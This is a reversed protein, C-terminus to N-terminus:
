TATAIILSAPGALGRHEVEGWGSAALWDRVEDTGYVDGEGTIILFEGALLAAQLPETHNPNTWFDLLLLRTGPEAARRVRQLLTRNKEPSFLHIVNALLIVDAGEPLPDSFADGGIVRINKGVPERELRPKAVAVVTPLEFLTAQMHPHQQLVALLFSGTGGGIDLLQHHRGFEYSSALARATGATLAEVGESFIRQEDETFKGHRTAAQGSRVTQELQLWGPYSIQDWFRLLPRLDSPTRGTLFADAVPGNKSEDGDRQVLGLAVMADAEIRATRRPVGSRRALEDLSLPGEALHEFLGIANAGFLHKSAMFSM